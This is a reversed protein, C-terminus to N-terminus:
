QSVRFKHTGAAVKAAVAEADDMKVLELDREDFVLDELAASSVWEIREVLDAPVWGDERLWVLLGTDHVEALEIVKGEGDPPFLLISGPKLPENEFLDHLFAM